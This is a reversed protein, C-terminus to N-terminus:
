PKVPQRGIRIFFLIALIRAYTSSKTHIYDGPILFVLKAMFTGVSKWQTYGHWRNQKRPDCIPDNKDPKAGDGGPAAPYKRAM